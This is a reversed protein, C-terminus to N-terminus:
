KDSGKKKTGDQLVPPGDPQHQGPQGLGGPPLKANIPQSLTVFVKYFGANDGYAFDWALVYAEGDQQCVGKRKQTSSLFFIPDRPFKGKLCAPLGRPQDLNQPQSAWRDRHDPDGSYYPGQTEPLCVVVGGEELGWGGEDAHGFADRFKDAANTGKLQGQLIKTTEDVYKDYASDSQSDLGIKTGVAALGLLASLGPNGTDKSFSAKGTASTIEITDGKKLGSISVGLPDAANIFLVLKVAQDQRDWHFDKGFGAPVGDGGVTTLSSGVPKGTSLNLAHVSQAKHVKGDKGKYLGQAMQMYATHTRDVVAGKGPAPEGAPSKANPKHDPENPFSLKGHLQIMKEIAKEDAHALPAAVGFSIAMSLAVGLTARSRISSM